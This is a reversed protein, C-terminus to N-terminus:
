EGKTEELRFRWEGTFVSAVEGFIDAMRSEGFSSAGVEGLFLLHLESALWCSAFKGM